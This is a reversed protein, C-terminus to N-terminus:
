AATDVLPDQVHPVPHDTQPTWPRILLFGGDCDDGRDTFLYDSARSQCTCGFAEDGDGLVDHIAHLDSM